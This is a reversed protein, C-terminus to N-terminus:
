QKGKGKARETGLAKEIKWRLHPYRRMFEGWGKTHQVLVHVRDSLRLLNWGEDAGGAGRSRIHAVHGRDGLYELTAECFPVRRAYEEPTASDLPDGGAKARIANWNDWYQAVEEADGVDVGFEALERFAAEILLSFESTTMASSRKPRYEGTIPDMVKPAVLALLAEHVEEKHGHEGYAVFGLIELTAWYLGNAGLSRKKKYPTLEVAAEGGDELIKKVLPRLRAVDGPGFELALRGPGLPRVKARLSM